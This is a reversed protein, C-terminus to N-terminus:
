DISETPPINGGEVIETHKIKAGSLARIIKARTEEPDKIEPVYEDKGPSWVVHDLAFLAEEIDDVSFGGHIQVEAYSPLNFDHLDERLIVKQGKPVYPRDLAEAIAEEALNKADYLSSGAVSGAALVQEDSLEGDLPVGFLGHDASDGNSMTSRARVSDRLRLIVRGYNEAAAGRTPPMSLERELDTEMFGYAPRLVDPLYEPIGLREAEIERRKEPNYFGGQKKKPKAKEFQSKYRKSKILQTLAQPRLAIYIPGRRTEEVRSRLRKLHQEELKQVLEARDKVGFHKVVKGLEDESLKDLVEKIYFRTTERAREV